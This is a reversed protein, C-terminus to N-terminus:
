PFVCEVSGIPKGDAIHRVRHGTQQRGICRSSDSKDGIGIVVSDREWEGDNGPVLRCTNSSAQGVGARASSDCREARRTRGNTLAHSRDVVSRDSRRIRPVIRRVQQRQIRQAVPPQTLRGARGGTVDTREAVVTRILSCRQPLRSGDRAIGVGGRLEVSRAIVKLESVVVAVQEVIARHLQPEACVVWGSGGLLMEERLIGAAEVGAPM